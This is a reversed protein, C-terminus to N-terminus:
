TGAGLGTGVGALRGHVTLLATAAAASEKNKVVTSIAIVQRILQLKMWTQFFM